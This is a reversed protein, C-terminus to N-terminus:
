KEQIKDRPVEFVQQLYLKLKSPGCCASQNPIKSWTNKIDHGPTFKKWTKVRNTPKSILFPWAMLLWAWSRVWASLRHLPPWSPRHGRLQYPSWHWMSCWQLRHFHKPDPAWFSATWCSDKRFLFVQGIRQWPLRPQFPLFSGGVLTINSPSIQLQNRSEMSLFWWSRGRHWSPRSARSAPIREYEPRYLAKSTWYRCIARYASWSRPSLARM